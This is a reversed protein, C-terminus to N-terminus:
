QVHFVLERSRSSTQGGAGQGEFLLHYEGPAFDALPINVKYQIQNMGNALRAQGERQWRVAGAATTVRSRLTLVPPATPRSSAGAPPTSPGGFRGVQPGVIPFSELEVFATLTEGPAFVRRLTPASGLARVIAEDTAVIQRSDAKSSAIVVDSFRVQADDPESATIATSTSGIAGNQVAVAAIRYNSNSLGLRDFTTVVTPTVGKGSKVKIVRRKIARLAGEEDFAAIALEVPEEPDIASQGKALDIGVLIPMAAASLRTVQMSLKLGPAVSESELATRARASLSKPPIVAPVVSGGPRFDYYGRTARVVVGPRRVNVKIVHFRADYKPTTAYSLLYTPWQYETLHQFNADWNNTNVVDLGGTYDAIMRVSAQKDRDGVEQARELRAQGDALQRQSDNGLDAVASGRGSADAPHLGSPDVTNIPISNLVAVRMAKDFLRNLRNRYELTELKTEWFYKSGQSFLVIAKRYGPLQALRNVLPELADLTVPSLELPSIRKELLLDCYQNVRRKLLERDNTPSLDAPITIWTIPVNTTVSVQEFRPSNGTILTVRDGPLLAHDIFSIASKRLQEPYGSDLVMVYIRPVDDPTPPSGVSGNPESASREARTQRVARKTDTNAFTDLTQPVDDEFLQFDDKTLDTVRNGNGDTVTVVVDVQRVGARFVPPQDQPLARIADSVVLCCCLVLLVRARM